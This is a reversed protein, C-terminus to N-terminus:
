INSLIISAQILRVMSSKFASLDEFDVFLEKTENNYGVGLRNKLQNFSGNEFSTLVDKNDIGLDFNEHISLCYGNQSNHLTLYIKDNHKNVFDTKISLTNSTIFEYNILENKQDKLLQKLMFFCEKNKLKIM